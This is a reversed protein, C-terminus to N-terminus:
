DIKERLSYVLTSLDRHVQKQVNIQSLENGDQLQKIQQSFIFEMKTWADIKNHFDIGLDMGNHFRAKAVEVEAPKIRLQTKKKDLYAKDSDNKM